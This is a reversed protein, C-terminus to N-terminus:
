LYEHEAPWGALARRDVIVVARVARHADAFAHHPFRHEREVVCVFEKITRRALPGTSLEGARFHWVYMLEAVGFHAPLIQDRQVNVRRREADEVGVFDAACLDSM